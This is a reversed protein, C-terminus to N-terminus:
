DTFISPSQGSALPLPVSPLCFGAQRRALGLFRDVPHSLMQRTAVTEDSQKSERRAVDVLLPRGLTFMYILAVNAAMRRSKTQEVM